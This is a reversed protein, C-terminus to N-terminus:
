AGCQDTRAQDVVDLDVPHPVRRPARVLDGLVAALLQPREAEGDSLHTSPALRGQAQRRRVPRQRAPRLNVATAQLTGSGDKTGRATLCQGTTIASTDAPNRKGYRTTPTVTVTAQSNDATTLVISSQREGIGRNRRGWARARRGPTRVPRQRGCAGARGRCHRPRAAATRPPGCWCANAQSSTPSSPGARTRHCPDVPHRRRHRARPARDADGHRGLGLRHARVSKDKGADKGGPGAAGPTPSASTSAPSSQSTSTGATPSSSSPSPTSSSGCAALSLATFGALTVAACRSVHSSIVM